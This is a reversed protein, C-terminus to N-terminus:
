FQILRLAIIIRPTIHYFNHYEPSRFSEPYRTFEVTQPKLKLKPFFVFVITIGLVGPPAHIRSGIFETKKQFLFFFHHPIAGWPHVFDWKRTYCGQFLLVHPMMQHCLGNVKFEFSLLLCFERFPRWQCHCGYELRSSYREGGDSM